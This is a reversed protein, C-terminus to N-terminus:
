LTEIATIIGNTVTVTKGDQSTFSGTAGTPIDGITAIQNDPDSSDNLFEGGNGSFTIKGGSSTQLVINGGFEATNSYGANISVNGGYQDVGSYTSGADITLSGGAGTGSDGAYVQVFGGSSEESYGGRVKVTGGGGTTGGGNGADVKVDGGSGGTSGGRGAWLYVDGGEGTTGTRGDAGAVVLRPATPVTTTPNPGIIISQSTVDNFRLVEGTGTRVNSPGSILLPSDNEVVVLRGDLDDLVDNLVPGWDSDGVEPKIITM